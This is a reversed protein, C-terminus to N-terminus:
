KSELTPTLHKSTFAYGSSSKLYCEFAYARDKETFACYWLIRYPTKAKNSKTEGRNHELLRNKLDTTAGIYKSKDVSSELIYVYFM